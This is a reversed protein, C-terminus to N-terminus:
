NILAFRCKGLRFPFCSGGEMGDLCGLANGTAQVPEPVRFRPVQYWHRALSRLCPIQVLLSAMIIGRARFM